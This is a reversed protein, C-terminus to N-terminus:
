ARHADRERWFEDLMQEVASWVEEVSILAVCPAAGSADRPFRCQWGCGTCEMERFVMEPAKREVHPEPAYPVFRGFHGGGAICVSPIRLLAAAHIAASENGVLFCAGGVIRMMQTLGTQGALNEGPLGSADLIEQCLTWESASGLLKVRLGPFDRAIKKIVLSFGNASWVRENKGAGPALIWYPSAAKAKKPLQFVFKETPARADKLAWALFAEHAAAEHLNADGVPLLAGYFRDGLRRELYTQNKAGGAFGYAYAGCARVIPDGVISDRSVVPHWTLAAGLLRLARLTRFRYAPDFQFRKREIPFIEVPLEERALESVAANCVLIVKEHHRRLEAYLRKAYPLWLIFDGIADTRVVVVSKGRTPREMLALSDFLGCVLCFLLKFAQKVRNRLQPIM